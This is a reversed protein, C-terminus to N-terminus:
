GARPQIILISVYTFPKSGAAQGSGQQKRTHGQAHTLMPEADTIILSHQAQQKMM